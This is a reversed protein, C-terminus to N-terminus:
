HMLEDTLKLIEPAIRQRERRSIRQYLPYALAVGVMGAIGIIIGPIFYDTLVLCCSMGAGMVLTSGIGLTLSYSCAKKNARSDLRRLHELKTEAQEKPLYKERIQKIEQQITASYTFEFSENNEM